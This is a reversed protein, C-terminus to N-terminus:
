DNVKKTFERPNEEREKDKEARLWANRERPAQKFFSAESERAHRKRQVECYPTSNACEETVYTM